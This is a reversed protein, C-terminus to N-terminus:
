PHKQRKLKRDLKHKKKLPLAVYEPPEIPQLNHDAAVYVEYTRDCDGTDPPTFNKERGLDRLHEAHLHDALAERIPPKLVLSGTLAKKAEFEDPPLRPCDQFNMPGHCPPPPSCQYAGGDDCCVHYPLDEDASM